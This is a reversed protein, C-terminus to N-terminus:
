VNGIEEDSIGLEELQASMLELSAWL